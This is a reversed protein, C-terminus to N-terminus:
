VTVIRRLDDGPGRKVINALHESIREFHTLIDMFIIGGAVSCQGNELRDIHGQQSTEVMAVLQHHMKQAQSVANQHDQKEESLSHLALDTMKNLHEVIEALQGYAIDSFVIKQNIKKNCHDVMEKAHDGIREADGVIHLVSPIQRSQVENLRQRGLEVMYFTIQSQLSNLIEEDELIENLLKRDDDIIAKYIKNYMGSALETCKGLEKYTASLAYAPRDLLLKDIYRPGVIRAEDEPTSPILRYLLKAYLNTFPIFILATGLNFITHLNAIQGSISGASSALLKVALPFFPLVMLVGIVNFGTHAVATRRAAKDTGISAILATLCTGINSGLIIGTAASLDLLGTTSLSMVLGTVATSSQIIITIIAGLIISMFPNSTYRIIYDKILPNNQVYAAGTTLTNLGLFLLGFGTVAQALYKVRENKAFHSVVVGLFITPLAYQTLNLRMMQGTITTGINAGYIIGLAQTLNMLGANVFGVMLVSVATSSHIVATVIAGVFVSVFINSTLMGLIKRLSDGAARELSKGMMDLSLLLLSIGGLIGFIFQQM